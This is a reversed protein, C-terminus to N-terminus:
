GIQKHIGYLLIINKNDISVRLFNRDRQSPSQSDRTKNRIIYKIIEGNQESELPPDWAIAIWTQSKNIVRINQPPGSPEAIM